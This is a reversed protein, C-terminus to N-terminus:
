HMNLVGEYLIDTGIICNPSVDCWVGTNKDYHLLQILVHFNESYNQSNFYGLLNSNAEDTFFTPKPDFLGDDVHSIFWNYFRVRKEYDAHKIEPAVTIKYPHIQLLKTATWM